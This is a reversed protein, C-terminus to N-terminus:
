ERRCCKVTKIIEGDENWKVARYYIDHYFIFWSGACVEKYVLDEKVHVSDVPYDDYAMVWLSPFHAHTGMLDGMYVAREGRSEILIVSHGKSHGGTKFMKVEPLIERESEFTEVRDAVAEWNRRWYTNGSRKNPNRMEYWEESSVIIGARPFVAAYEGEAVRETLGSAHDFHMHSLLVYDIEEPKIGMENLSSKIGSEENCGFNKKQKETLKGYGIGSELMIKKDGVQLLIPDTREKIQNKENAEYRRSWLPKPVVGFMAGGDLHIAGGNLWTLSVDGINFGDM